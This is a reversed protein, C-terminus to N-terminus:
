LLVGSIRFDPIDTKLQFAKQFNPLSFVLPSFLTNQLAHMAKTHNSSWIWKMIKTFFNM